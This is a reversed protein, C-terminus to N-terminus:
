PNVTAYFKQVLKGGEWTLAVMAASKVPNRSADYTIAGTVFKGNTKAMANRVATKDTTGASQIASAVIKLADYGLAALANPVEGNYAAKYKDVFAVVDPDTAGPDYHNSFFSGAVEQGANGMIGDWGDGGVLIVDTMGADRIQKAILADKGYYDPLFIVEPNTGKIKTIIASYDQDNLSYAEKDTITGGTASFAKEFETALGKSYDNGNDFMIAAKTKKLNELTFKACVTGQFPDIFCTRFIFDGAQTVKENTSATTILPIGDAQALPAIALTCKSAVSGIIVDVKDQTTLKKYADVSKEPKNEDDELVLVLQRGNIGGAKNIEDIGIKIANSTSVGYVSVDGTMPMIAGIKIPETNAAPADTAAPASTAAPAVTAAPATGTAAPTCGTVILGVAMMIVLILSPVRMKKM